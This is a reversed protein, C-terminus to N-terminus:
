LRYQEITIHYQKLLRQLSQRKLGSERAAQSINGETRRLLHELYSTQFKELLAEKAPQYTMTMLSEIDVEGCFGNSGSLDIDEPEIIPRSGLLIARKIVNQLQRVNGPWPATSLKQMAKVSITKEPKNSDKCFQSICHLALLPIDEVMSRLPPMPLTIESIRFYLDERFKKQRVAQWLDCNTAAIIRVDIHRSSTEGLPRIVGEQLVRLLKAQLSLPMEGIEDLLLSSGDAAAFLGDHRSDAGTFAGKRHGFLESELISEPLAACNVAIMERDGRGSLQHITQAALEKGTGSEGSILVTVASDAIQKIITLAKQLVQSNGIFQKQLQQERIRRELAQNRIILQQRELCQKITHFLQNHQLPKTVFNTAGKHLAEVAQDISGYATMLITDIPQPMANIRELLELGSMDPMRIDSLVLQCPKEALVSLAQAASSATLIECDLKSRALRKLGALLDIEDDVILISNKNMQLKMVEDTMSM